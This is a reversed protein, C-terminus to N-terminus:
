RKVQLKPTPPEVYEVGHFLCLDFLCAVAVEGQNRACGYLMRLYGNEEPEAKIHDTPCYSAYWTGDCARWVWAGDPLFDPPQWKKRVIIYEVGGQTRNGKTGFVSGRYLFLEDARHDPVRFEGTAEYDDPTDVTVTIQQRPM